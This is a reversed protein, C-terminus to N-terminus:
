NEDQSSEQQSKEQMYREVGRKMEKKIERAPTEIVRQYYEEREEENPILEATQKQFLTSRENIHKDILVRLSVRGRKNQDTPNNPKDNELEKLQKKALALSEQVQKIAMTNEADRGAGQATEIEQLQKLVTEAEQIADMLEQHYENYTKQMAEAKIQQVDKQTMARVVPVGAAIIGVVLMGIRKM